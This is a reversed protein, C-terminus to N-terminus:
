NGTAASHAEHRSRREGQNAIWTATRQRYGRNAWATDRIKPVARIIRKAATEDAESYCHGGLMYDYIRSPSPRSTDLGELAHLASTM